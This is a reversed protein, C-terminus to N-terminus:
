LINQLSIKEKQWLEEAADAAEMLEMVLEQRIEQQDTMRTLLEARKMHKEVENLNEERITAGLRKQYAEWDSYIARLETQVEEGLGASYSLQEMQQKLELTYNHLWVQSAVGSGLIVGVLSLLIVMRKM